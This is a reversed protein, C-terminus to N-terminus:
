SASRGAPKLPIWLRVRYGEATPGSELSGQLREARERMGGLGFGGGSLGSRRTSGCNEVTLAVGATAFRLTIDVRTADSHKRVNTLAEQAVRYVALRSEAPLDAATGETRVRCPVGTDREFEAALQPLLEPGLPTEGRLSAVARRAEGLGERALGSVRELAALVTPDCSRQEALLRAGELQITLASLSHALVDHMERALHAREDLSAARIVADRGAVVEALLDATRQQELRLRRMATSALYTFLLAAATSVVQVRPQPWTAVTTALLFGGGGLAAITRSTTEDLRVGSLAIVAIMAIFAGNSPACLQMVVAACGSVPLLSLTSPREVALTVTGLFLLASFWAGLGRLGAPRPVASVTGSVVV